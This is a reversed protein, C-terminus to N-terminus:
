VVKERERERQMDIVIKGITKRDGERWKSQEVVNAKRSLRLGAM